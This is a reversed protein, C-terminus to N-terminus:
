KNSSGRSNTNRSFSIRFNKTKVIFNHDDEKNENKIKHSKIVSGCFNELKM